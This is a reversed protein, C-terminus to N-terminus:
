KYLCVYDEKEQAIGIASLTLCLLYFLNKM